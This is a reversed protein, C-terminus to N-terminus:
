PAFANGLTRQHPDEELLPDAGVDGREPLEPERSAAPIGSLAHDDVAVVLGVRLEGRGGCAPASTTRSESSSISRARAAPIVLVSIRTVGPISASVWSFIRVPWWPEFNPSVGSSESSASRREGPISPSWTWM